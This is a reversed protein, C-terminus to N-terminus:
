NLSTITPERRNPLRFYFVLRKKLWIIGKIKDLKNTIKWLLLDITIPTQFWTACYKYRLFFFGFAGFEWHTFYMCPILRMEIKRKKIPNIM